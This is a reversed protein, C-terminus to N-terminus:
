SKGLHYHYIGFTKALFPVRSMWQIRALRPQPKDFVFWSDVFRIGQNWHELDKGNKLGWHYRVKIKTLSMKLNNIRVIYPSFADFILESEPFHEQLMLVLAKVESETFYMFVGEAIFLMTKRSSGVIEQMWKEDLVSSPLFRYRGKTDGLLDRRLHIVEPLDLDYWEVQGNDVREFRSDLGCGIHVVMAQPHEKLFDRVRRDFELNRLIISVVDTEEMKFQRFRDFAAGYKEVLLMAQGDVLLADPRRSELARFYLPWLLSEAVGHLGGILEDTM